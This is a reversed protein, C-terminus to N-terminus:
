KISFHPIGRLNAHAILTDWLRSNHKRSSKLKLRRFLPRYQLPQLDRREEDILKLCKRCFHGIDMFKRSNANRLYYVLEFRVFLTGLLDELQPPLSPQVGSVMNLIKYRHKALRKGYRKRVFKGIKEGTLAQKGFHQRVCQVVEDPIKANQRGMLVRLRKKFYVLRKYPYSKKYTTTQFLEDRTMSRVGSAIYDSSQVMGCQACVTTFDQYVLDRSGCEYCEGRLEKLDYISHSPESQQPKLSQFVAWCSPPLPDPAM